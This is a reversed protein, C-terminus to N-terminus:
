LGQIRAAHEGIVHAYRSVREHAFAPAVLRRQQRHQEGGSTLLGKGFIQPLLLRQVPGKQFDNVRDILVEQVLEPAKIVVASYRGFRVRGIRDVKAGMEEVLQVRNRFLTRVTQLAQIM